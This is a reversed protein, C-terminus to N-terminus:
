DVSTQAPSRRYSGMFVDADSISSQQKWKSAEQWGETDGHLFTM